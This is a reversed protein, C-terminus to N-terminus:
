PPASEGQTAEDEVDEFFADFDFQLDEESVTPAVYPRLFAAHCADCSARLNLAGARLDDAETMSGMAAATASAAASLAAFAPFDNWIAPLAITVPTEADPDYLNTTPPFLHPVSLLMNSITIATSSLDAPDAPEGVTFSDIPRMLREMETMLANRALIVAEPNTVGTWGPTAAPDDARAPGLCAAAALISVATTTLRRKRCPQM